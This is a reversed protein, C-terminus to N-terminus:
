NGDDQAQTLVRDHLLVHKEHHTLATWVAGQTPLSRSTDMLTLALMACIGESVVPNQLPSQVAKEVCKLLPPTLAQRQAPSPACRRLAGSVLSIYACRVAQTTSKASLNKQFIQLVQEPLQAGQLKDLWAALADLAAVLTREHSESDLVRASCTCVEDFLKLREADDVGLSSLTGAGHLVAMKDESSTLKGSAGNYEAFVHKVLAQACAPQSVRVALRALATVAEARVWEDKSHLNGILGKGIDVALGELNIELNAVVEGVAQIVTEPSRLMAKHLAPLLTEQVEAPQLLRLLDCCGRIYNANPRSKVSVLSKIFSELMKARDPQTVTAASHRCLASYAVAIHPGADAPQAALVEWWKQLRAKGAARWSWHLLAYAKDHKRKDGQAVVVALFNAQTLVLSNYDVGEDKEQSAKLATEVLTTTWHLGILGTTCTSKSAATNRLQISVDLLLPLLNKFTWERQREALFVLLNRVYSQSTTDRYRNLTLLIVRCIYRVVQETTEPASLVDQIEGIVRRREKLSASQIKFPIDKLKKLVETDAM